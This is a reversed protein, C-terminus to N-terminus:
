GARSSAGNQSAIPRSAAASRRRKPPVRVDPHATSQQAALVTARRGASRVAGEAARLALEPRNCQQSLHLLVIHRLSGTSSRELVATVFDAAQGNSLHGRDGLVRAILAPARGSNRQLVVDHNFEIALLDVDALAEAMEVSWSGTDAVYGLSVWPGRREAKGELRFGYTPGGDHRLRVPEVRLGTPSLFPSEEYSRILGASELAGFGPFRALSARHGEHCILAIKQRTMWHLSANNVHDGHTHTLLVCAIRDWSSGVSALRKAIKRPALGADVLLGAGGAHILAANGRSGSALVAFQIPTM